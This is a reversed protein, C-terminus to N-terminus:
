TSGALNTNVALLVAKSDMIKPKGSKVQYDLNKCSSGFKKKWMTVTSHDVAGVDKACVFTKPLKPPTPARNLSTFCVNRLEVVNYM